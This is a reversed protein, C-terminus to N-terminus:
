FLTEKYMTDSYRHVKLDVAFKLERYVSYFAILFVPTQTQELILTRIVSLLFLQRLLNLCKYSAVQENVLHGTM